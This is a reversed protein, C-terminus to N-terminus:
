GEGRGPSLPGHKPHVSALFRVKGGRTSARDQTVKARALSVLEAMGLRDCTDMEMVKEFRELAGAADGLRLELYGAGKLSETLTAVSESLSLEPTEVGHNHPYRGTFLSMHSALTWSSQAYANEFVVGDAALSDLFPSTDREYGYCGLHDARLTDVSILIVNPSDPATKGCSFSLLGVVIIRKM